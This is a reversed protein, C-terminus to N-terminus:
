HSVDISRSGLLNLRTTRITEPEVVRGDPRRFRLADSPCQVICAGCQICDDPNTIEVKRIRGNMKLVGRPCVAVCDAAGTCADFLLEVDFRDRAM